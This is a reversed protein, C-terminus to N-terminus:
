GEWKHAIFLVNEEKEIKNLLTTMTEWDGGALGCGIGYPIGIVLQCCDTKFYHNRVASISGRMAKDFVTYDTYLGNRGYGDQAYLNLVIREVVFKSKYIPVYDYSGLLNSTDGINNECTHKYPEYINPYKNRIQKAIGAGMVGKCNVQQAIIQVPSELLDGKIVIM